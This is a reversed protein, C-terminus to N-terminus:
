SYLGFPNIITILLWNKLFMEIMFESCDELLIYFIRKSFSVLATSNVAKRKHPNVLAHDKVM